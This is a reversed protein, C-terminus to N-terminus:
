GAAQKVAQAAAGVSKSVKNPIGSRVQYRTEAETISLQAEVMAGLTTGTYDDADLTDRIDELDTTYTDGAAQGASTRDSSIDLAVDAM